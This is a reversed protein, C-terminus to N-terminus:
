QMTPSPSCLSTVTVKAGPKVSTGGNATAIEDVIEDHRALAVPMADAADEWLRTSGEVDTLLFTVVGRPLEAM